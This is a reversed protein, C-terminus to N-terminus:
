KNPHLTIKQVRWNSADAVYLENESRCDIGHAGNFEKLRTGTKGFKGVIAGNLEIKYIELEEGPVPNLVAYLYQHTGPSICIANARVNPIQNKFNGDNDFVQIRHNERDSVYVDGKADVAIGHVLNFQGPEKGRSGWTKIFKGNKDFKAVRSNGYGDSVFIDGAADWAVDTPRNFSDGLVGAGVGRGDFPVPGAPESSPESEPPAPINVYEPKRGLTMDVRGAPNFKIVMDSGEDVVWINDQPDVRVMHAFVFGYLGRGIERVYKGNNDFEFLRAGGRVLPRSTGTTVNVSGNRSYVFVHGKSNVAVGGLEGFYIHEPLKLPDVADYPIEPISNQALLPSVFLLALVMGFFFGYYSNMSTM